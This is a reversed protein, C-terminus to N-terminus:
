LGLIQSFVEKNNYNHIDSLCGAGSGIAGGIATDEQTLGVALPTLDFIPGERVEGVTCGLFNCRDSKCEFVLVIEGNQTGAFICGLQLFAARYAGDPDNVVDSATQPDFRRQARIESALQRQPLDDGPDNILARPQRRHAEGLRMRGTLYQLKGATKILVIEVVVQYPQRVMLRGDLAAQECRPAPDTLRRQKQVVDGATVELALAIGQRSKAIVPIAFCTLLLDNNPQQAVLFACWHRRINKSAICGIQLGHSGLNRLHGPTKAAFPHREDAVPAHELTPLNRRKGACAKM